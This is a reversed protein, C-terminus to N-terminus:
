ELIVVDTVDLLQGPYSQLTAGSSSWVRVTQGVKLDSLSGQQATRCATGQQMYIHVFSNVSIFTDVRGQTNGQTILGIMTSGNESASDITQVTGTLNEKGCPVQMSTMFRPLFLATLSGSLVFAILLPIWIKPFLFYRLLSTSRFM